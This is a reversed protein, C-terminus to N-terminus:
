LVSNGLVGHSQTGYLKNLENNFAQLLTDELLKKVPEYLAKEVVKKYKRPLNDLWELPVGYPTLNFIYLSSIEVNQFSPEHNRFLFVYNNIFILPVILGFKPELM